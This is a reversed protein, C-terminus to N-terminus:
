KPPSNTAAQAVDRRHKETPIKPSLNALRLRKGVGRPDHQVISEAHTHAQKQATCLNVCRLM